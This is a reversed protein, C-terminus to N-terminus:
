AVLHVALRRLLAHLRRLEALLPASRFSLVQIVHLAVQSDTFLHITEGPLLLGEFSLLSLRVALVEKTKIHLAADDPTLVGRASWKSSSRAFGGGWGIGSADTHLTSTAALQWLLTSYNLDPSLAAWFRLDQVSQHSLYWDSRYDSAGRLDNSVARTYIWAESITPQTSVALGAMGQLAKHRVYRWNRGATALVAKAMGTLKDLRKTTLNLRNARTDFLLGLM